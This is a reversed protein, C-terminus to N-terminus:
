VKGFLYDPQLPLASHWNDPLLEKDPEGDPSVRNTRQREYYADLSEYYGTEPGSFLLIGWVRLGNWYINSSLRQVNYGATAGIIGDGASNASLTNRLRNQWERSRKTLIRSAMQREELSKLIWPIFLFYRLRTQITSTGPFLLDTLTDRITGIGLEDRTDKERFLDIVEMVRQQEEESYDLWSLQSM